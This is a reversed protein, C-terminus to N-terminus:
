LPDRLQRFTRDVIEDVTDEAHVPIRLDCHRYFERRADYLARAAEVDDFLPRAARGTEDLRGLVVDFPPDLWVCDGRERMWGRNVASVPTGGGTAIVAVGATDLTQLCRTELERFAAEGDAAFIERIPRGAREEVLMDLDVATGGLRDALRRGVSSKGSAM